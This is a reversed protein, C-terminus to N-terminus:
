HKNVKKMNASGNKQFNHMSLGRTPNTEFCDHQTSDNSESFAPPTKRSGIITSRALEFKSASFLKTDAVSARLGQRRQFAVSEGFDSMIKNATDHDDDEAHNSFSRPESAFLRKMTQFTINRVRPTNIVYNKVKEEMEAIVKIDSEIPAFDKLIDNAAIRQFHMNPHKLRATELTRHIFPEERDEAMIRLKGDVKARVRNVLVPPAATAAMAEHLRMGSSSAALPKTKSVNATEPYEYTRAVLPEIERDEIERLAEEDREKSDEVAAICAM